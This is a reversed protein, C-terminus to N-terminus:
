MSVSSNSASRLEIISSVISTKIRSSMFIRSSYDGVKERNENCTNTARINAYNRLLDDAALKVVCSLDEINLAKICELNLNSNNRLLVLFDITLIIFLILIV